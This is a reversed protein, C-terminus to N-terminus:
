HWPWSHDQRADSIRRLCTGDLGADFAPGSRATSSWCFAFLRTELGSGAVEGVVPSAATLAIENVAWWSTAPAVVAGGQTIKLTQAITAAPFNLPISALGGTGAVAPAFAVFTTRDTSYM